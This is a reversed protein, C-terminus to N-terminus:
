GVFAAVQAVTEPTAVSLVPVSKDIKRVLGALVSGPGIELARSVGSQIMLRISPQWLVAGDVQSVLLPAVRSSDANPKAEFNSVVPFALPSVTIARLANKVASAAPQMLSCHFPASVQLPIAKLKRDSALARAREVAAASGAIVIQGPANFNAASLVDGERAADCLARVDAEEGGLIAAMAGVGPPVAEQMANGRLRVLRVADAFALAGSAVLASYEGLSHGAAFAPPPLNPVQARIARLVAISTTVIAPQANATLTLAEAPGEFCLTSLKEGLADDAEEFTARAEPYADYLAKGMGVQQSGQGPFLWAITM